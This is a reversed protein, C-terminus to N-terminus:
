SYTSLKTPIFNQSSFSEHKFEVMQTQKKIVNFYGKECLHQILLMRFIFM